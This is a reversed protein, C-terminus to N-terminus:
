KVRKLLKAWGIEEFYKKGLETIGWTKCTRTYGTKIFGTSIYEDVQQGKLLDFERLDSMRGYKNKVAYGLVDYSNQEINIKM